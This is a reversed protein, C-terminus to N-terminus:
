TIDGGMDHLINLEGNPSGVGNVPDLPVEDSTGSSLFPFDVEYVPIGNSFTLIFSSQAKM